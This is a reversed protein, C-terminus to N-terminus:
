VSKIEQMEINQASSNVTQRFFFRADVIVVNVVIVLSPKFFIPCVKTKEPIYDKESDRAFERTRDIKISINTRQQIFIMIDLKETLVGRLPLQTIDRVYKEESLRQRRSNM